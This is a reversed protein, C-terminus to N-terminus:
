RKALAPASSTDSLRWRETDHYARWLDRYLPCRAQLEAPEGSDIIQGAEMVVIHDAQAVTQLRHAIM